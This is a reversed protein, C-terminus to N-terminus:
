AVKGLEAMKQVSILCGIASHIRKYSYFYIYSEVTQVVEFHNAFSQYNLREAKLNRFFREMVANDWCNGKRSMSQTINNKSCYDIFVKSSYQTGQDSHFMLHKTNPKYRNIANDLADQALKANPQKSLAWGVM